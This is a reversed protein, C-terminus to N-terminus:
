AQTVGVVVLYAAVLIWFAYDSVIPIEVFVGVIAVLLLVLSAMIGWKFAKKSPAHVAHWIIVAGVLIWFDYDSVIPIEVFVGLVAVIAIVLSAMRGFSMQVGWLLTPCKLWGQYYVASGCGYVSCHDDASLASAIAM